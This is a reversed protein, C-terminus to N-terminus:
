VKISYQNTIGIIKGIGQVSKHKITPLAYHVLMDELLKLFSVQTGFMYMEATSGLIYIASIWSMFM